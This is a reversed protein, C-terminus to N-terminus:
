PTSRLPAAIRPLAPALPGQDLTRLMLGGLLVGLEAEVADFPEARVTATGRWAGVRTSRASENRYVELTQTRPDM